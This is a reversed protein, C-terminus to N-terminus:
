GRSVGYGFRELAGPFPRGPASRRPSKVEEQAPGESGRWPGAEQTMEAM